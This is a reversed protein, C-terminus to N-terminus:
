KKEHELLQSILYSMKLARNKINILAEIYDNETQEDTLMSDCHSIIDNLPAKLEQSVDFTFQKESNFSKELRELMDNFTIGLHYLEDKKDGVPLRKSLDDGENINIVASNMENLPAFGKHAIMYGGGSVLIILIPLMFFFSKLITNVHDSISNIQIFGRIWLKEYGIINSVKRDYIYYKQNSITITRTTKNEFKNKAASKYSNFSYNGPLTGFLLREDNDYVAIFTDNIPASIDTNTHLVGSADIESAVTKVLNRMNNKVDSDSVKQSIYITLSSFIVLIIVMVITYWITVRMKISLNKM